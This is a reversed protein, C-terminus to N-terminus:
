QQRPQVYTDANNTPSVYYAPKVRDASVIRKKNNITIEFTKSNRKIVPYPGLYPPQLPKRVQDDRLFVHTCDELKPHVFVNNRSYQRTPQAALDSLHQQLRDVFTADMKQEHTPEIFEGPLRLTRGFTLEAASKGTDQRVAARMGLLVTPLEDIWNITNQRAMISAKLTRHARELIGIAIPHFSTTRM